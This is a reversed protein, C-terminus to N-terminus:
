PVFHDFEFRTGDPLIVADFHGIGCEREDFLAVALRGKHEEDDPMPWPCTDCDGEPYTRILVQDNLELRGWKVTLQPPDLRKVM